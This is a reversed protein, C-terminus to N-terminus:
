RSCDASLVVDHQRQELATAFDNWAQGCERALRVISAVQHPPVTDSLRQWDGPDLSVLDLMRLLARGSDSLRLSPDTRLSRVLGARDGIRDVTRETRDAFRAQYSVQARGAPEPRGASVAAVPRVAAVPAMAQTPVGQNSPAGTQGATREQERRVHRVTDPSVGAARAIERLSAEPRAALLQQVQARGAAGDVPRVRGDRGCRTDSQPIEGSARRRVLGVTKHSLGTVSAIARDSWGPHSRVIRGAAAMRDARSLPLGHAVNTEVALVFAEDDDCECFCVDIGGSGRLRAAALRHAGDVVRMTRRNVLIPPLPADAEALLRVHESDVGGSRPSDPGVLAALELRSVEASSGGSGRTSRHDNV